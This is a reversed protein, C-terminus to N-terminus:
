VQCFACVDEEWMDARKKMGDWRHHASHVHQQRRDGDRCHSISSQLFTVPSSLAPGEEEEEENNCGRAIAGFMVSVSTYFSLSTWLEQPSACPEQDVSFWTRPVMGRVAAQATGHNWTCRLPEVM